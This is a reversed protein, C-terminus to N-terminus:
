YQTTLDTLWDPSVQVLAAELAKDLGTLAMVGVLLIAIGLVTKGMSGAGQLTKRGRMLFARTTYAIAILSGAAGLGFVAMVLFVRGLNEGQAALVTAAGLTPGVCPSWVLGLLAGLLFQGAVGKGEFSATRENAWNSAPALAHSFMAQVPPFLLWAGIAIMLVAGLIRFAQPDFGVSQSVSAVAAGVFSFSLAVGLALAAPALRHQAAAGAALIPALPLVCPSLITLVGAVLALALSLDAPSTM